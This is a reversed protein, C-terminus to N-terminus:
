TLSAVLGNRVPDDGSTFVVPITSTAAKAALAASPGGGFIVTVKRSVLDAALAPLHDYQGEAWRFEIAVNKGSQYGGEKLGEKFADVWDTSSSLSTSGLFGIVPMAPQQGRANLPWAAAIGGFLTIFTRRKMLGKTSAM